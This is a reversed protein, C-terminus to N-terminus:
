SKMGAKVVDLTAAATGLAPALFWGVVPVLMLLVFVAGNGIALGKHSSVFAVRQRVSYRRRELTPDMDGFGAYYAQILFIIVPSLLNGVGTIGLLIIVVLTWFLERVINRLSIRLARALDVAM